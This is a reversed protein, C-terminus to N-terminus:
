TGSKESSKLDSEVTETHLCLEPYMALNKRRRPTMETCLRLYKRAASRDRSTEPSARWRWYWYEPDDTAMTEWAALATRASKLDKRRVADKVTLLRIASDLDAWEIDTPLKLAAVSPASGNLCDQVQLRLLRVDNGLPYITEAQTVFNEAKVCDLGRLAARAGLRSVAVNGDEVKLLPLLIDTADKPRTMWISEALSYQNQGKDSLFVEAIESWAQTIERASERSAKSGSTEKGGERYLEKLYKVAGTRDGKLVLERAKEIKASTGNAAFVHSSVILALM